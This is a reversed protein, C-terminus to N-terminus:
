YKTQRCVSSCDPQASKSSYVQKLVPLLESTKNLLNPTDEVSKGQVEGPKLPRLINANGFPVFEVDVIDQMGPADLIDKLYTM